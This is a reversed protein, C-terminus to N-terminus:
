LEFHGEFVDLDYGIEVGYKNEIVFSVMGTESREM